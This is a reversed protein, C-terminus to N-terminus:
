RFTGAVQASLLGSIPEDDKLDRRKLISRVADGVEAQVFALNAADSSATAQMPLLETSIYTAVAALTPYDFILTTPLEVGLQTELVNRFEVSSLSDLGAAMLPAEPAAEAGLISTLAAAVERQINSAHAALAAASPAAAAATVPPQSQQPAQQGVIFQSVANITPYDFVLTSPLELGIRQELSNRFEVSSLSDLGAAMLPDGLGVDAGLIERAVSLVLAVVQQMQAASPQGSLQQSAVPSRPVARPATAARAASIPEAAIASSAFPAFMEPVPKALRSIFKSWRFPVVPVVPEPRLLSFVAQMAQLGTTPVVMGMGMREVRV